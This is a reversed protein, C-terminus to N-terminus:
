STNSILPYCGRVRFVRRIKRSHEYPDAWQRESLGKLEEIRAAGM